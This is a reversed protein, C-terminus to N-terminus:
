RKSRKKVTKAPKASDILITRPKLLVGHRNLLPKIAAEAQSQNWSFKKMADEYLQDESKAAAILGFLFQDIEIWNM